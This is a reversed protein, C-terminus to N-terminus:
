RRWGSWRTHRRHRRLRSSPPWATRGSQVARRRPWGDRDDPSSRSPGTDSRNQRRGCGPRSNLNSFTQYGGRVLQEALEREEGLWSSRSRLPQLLPAPLAGSVM